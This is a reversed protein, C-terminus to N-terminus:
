DFMLYINLNLFNVYITDNGEHVFEEYCFLENLAQKLSALRFTTCTNYCWASFNDIDIELKM